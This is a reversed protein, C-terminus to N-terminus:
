KSDEHAGKLIDANFAEGPDPLVSIKKNDHKIGVIVNFTKQIEGKSFLDVQDGYSIWKLGEVQKRYVEPTLGFYGAISTSAEEPHAEYYELAKFWGRILKRVLEPNNKVIDERVNLIDVIIGPKERTTVLIHAGPKEAARSLEPEWTVAADGVGEIFLKAIKDPNASVIIVDELTLNEKSLLWLFFTEGVDDRALLVRKGALDAIRKIDGDAVIGDSGYSKDIVMVGVVPAGQARKSILLDMTGAEVDLMGAKFADRRASDLQEDVFLLDVGEDAMFGKDEALYFLGYGVWEQFAITVPTLEKERANKGCGSASFMAFLLIFVVAIRRCGM